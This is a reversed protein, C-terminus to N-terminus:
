SSRAIRHEPLGSVDLDVAFLNGGQPDDDDPGPKASTIFLTKLDPGGFAPCTINKAPVDVVRDVEGQPNFRVVSSGAWRANWMYGESDIVSGDPKGPLDSTDAFVRPESTPWGTNPDLDQVMIIRTPSDTFYARTGDPSFCISNPISLNPHLVRTEGNKYGYIASANDRTEAHLGMTGIWFIGGPGVRGDNSRSSPNNAELGNELRWTGTEIDFVYFGSAAAILLQEDDIIGAASAYEHFSWKNVVTGDPEACFLQYEDIDFWFLKDIGDHWLPSEGLKNPYGVISRATMNSM